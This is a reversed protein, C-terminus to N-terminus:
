RRLNKLREEDVIAYADNPYATDFVGPLRDGEIPEENFWDLAKPAFFADGELMGYDFERVHTMSFFAVTVKLEPESRLPRLADQLFPLAEAIQAQDKVLVWFAIEGYQWQTQALIRMWLRGDERQLEPLLAVLPDIDM